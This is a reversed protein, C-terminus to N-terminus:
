IKWGYPKGRDQPTKRDHSTKCNDHNECLLIKGIGVAGPWRTGNLKRLIAMVGMKCRFTRELQICAVFRVPPVWLDTLSTGTWM